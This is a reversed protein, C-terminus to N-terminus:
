LIGLKKLKSIRKNILYETGIDKRYYLNGKIYKICDYCIKSAEYIEESIGVIAISRSGTTLIKGNEENVSAYFLKANRKLIEKEDIEIVQGRLPNNPYGQPVLYVCVTAKNEFIVDKESLNGDIIKLCINLFNSKLISLINMAEPDGFRVNYEVIKPGQKTIMFQGYLIGKYEIGEEKKLADFTEQMIKFSKEYIDRNIFPLLHDKQSISGMGGTNEGKDDDFARKHDHVLPMPVLRKGDCFCQLVYEEGEMREEIVIKKHQPLIKSCYELSDEINFVHEGLVKVGKGGTLGDPKIVYDKIEEIANRAENLSTVIKFKPNANINYKEMLLRAFSKSGEIKAVSKFPSICPIKNKECLDAIGAVIPAEPGPIVFDVKEEKAFNVIEELNLLNGIKIKKSIRSILPNRISSYSYVEAGSNYLSLAIACERGGEGIVLSKIM